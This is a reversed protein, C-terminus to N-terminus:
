VFFVNQTGFILSRIAPSVKLRVSVTNRPTIKGLYVVQFTHGSDVLNYIDQNKACIESIITAKEEDRIQAETKNTGDISLLVFSPIDYLTVKPLM